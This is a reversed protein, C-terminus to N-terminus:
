TKTRTLLPTAYLSLRNVVNRYFTGTV